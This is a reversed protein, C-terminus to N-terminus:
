WTRATPDNYLKFTVTGTANASLGSVTAIDKVSAGPLTDDAAQAVTM